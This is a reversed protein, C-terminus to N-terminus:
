AYRISVNAKRRRLAGGAMGVGGIMMAWTAPEPVAALSASFSGNTFSDIFVDGQNTTFFAFSGFTQDLATTPLDSLGDYGAIPGGSFSGGGTGNSGFFLGVYDAANKYFQTTTTVTYPGGAADVTLSTLTVRQSGGVTMVDDTDGIGTFTATTAFPTGALTGTFDGTFTYTITAADAQAASLLAVATTALLTLAKM